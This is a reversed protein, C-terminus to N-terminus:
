EKNMDLMDKLEQRLKDMMDSLSSMLDDNMGEDGNDSGQRSKARESSAEGPEKRKRLNKFIAMQMEIDNLRKQVESKFDYFMKLTVDSAIPQYDYIKEIIKVERQSNQRSVGESVNGEGSEMAEM